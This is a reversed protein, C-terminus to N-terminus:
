CLTVTSIGTTRMCKKCADDVGDRGAGPEPVLQGVGERGDTLAWLRDAVPPYTPVTLPSCTPTIDMHSPMCQQAGHKDQQLTMPVAM